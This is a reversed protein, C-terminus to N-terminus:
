GNRQEKPVCPIKRNSRKARKAKGAEAETITNDHYLHITITQNGTVYHKMWGDPDLPTYDASVHSRIENDIEVNLIYNKPDSFIHTLFLKVKLQTKKKDLNLMGTTNKM